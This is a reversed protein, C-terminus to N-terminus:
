RTFLGDDKGAAFPLDRLVRPWFAPNDPTGRYLLAQVTKGSEGEVVEIIDRAYGQSAFMRPPIHLVASINFVTAVLRHVDVMYM